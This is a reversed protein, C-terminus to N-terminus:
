YWFCLLSVDFLRVMLALGPLGIENQQDMIPSKMMGNNKNWM